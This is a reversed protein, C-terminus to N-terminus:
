YRKYCRSVQILNFVSYVFPEVLTHPIECWTSQMYCLGHLAANGSIVHAEFLCCKGTKLGLERRVCGLMARCVAGLAKPCAGVALDIEVLVKPRARMDRTQRTTGWQTRMQVHSAQTSCLISFTLAQNNQLFVFAGAQMGPQRGALVYLLQLLRRAQDQHQVNM